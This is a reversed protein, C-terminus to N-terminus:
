SVSRSPAPHVLRDILHVSSWLLRLSREAGSRYVTDSVKFRASLHGTSERTLVFNTGGPVKDPLTPYAGRMFDIENQMEELGFHEDDFGVDIKGGEPGSWSVVQVTV